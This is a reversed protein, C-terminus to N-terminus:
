ISEIFSILRENVIKANKIPFGHSGSITEAAINPQIGNMKFAIKKPSKSYIPDDEGIMILTPVKIKEFEDKSYVKLKAGKSWGKFSMMGSTFLTFTPNPFDNNDSGSIWKLFRNIKDVNGSFLAPFLKIFFVISIPAICGAPSMAVLSNVREPHSIAFTIAIFGGFSWGAINPKEIELKNLVESLWFVYDSNNIVARNSKTKGPEGITDICFIEFHKSLQELNYYWAISSFGQCHLLVLKPYEKEGCHIVHTDGYTTKVHQTDYTVTLQELAKNYHSFYEQEKNKSRFLELIGGM